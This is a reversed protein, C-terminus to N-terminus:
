IQSRFEPLSSVSTVIENQAVGLRERVELTAASGARDHATVIDDDLLNGEDARQFQISQTRCWPLGREVVDLLM